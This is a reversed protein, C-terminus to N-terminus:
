KTEEAFNNEVFSFFFVFFELHPTHTYASELFLLLLFFLFFGLFKPKPKNKKGDLVEATKINFFPLSSM